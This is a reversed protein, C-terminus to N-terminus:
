RGWPSCGVLSRRGHSKGPLLIPSPHWQRRQSHLRSMQLNALHGLPKLHVRNERDEQFSHLQRIMPEERSWIIDSVYQTNFLKGETIFPVIHYILHLKRGELFESSIGVQFNGIKKGLDSRIQHSIFAKCVFCHYSLFYTFISIWLLSCM